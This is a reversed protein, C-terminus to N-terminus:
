VRPRRHDDVAVYTLQAETVKVTEKTGSRGRQAFVEVDVTISTRGVKLVQAYFSVIDGVFVPEKFVFSNVAVTVVPGQAREWAPISGAIDVQAMVWGGFITGQANTDAPMPVIRLVPQRDPLRLTM